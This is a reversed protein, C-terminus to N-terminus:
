RGDGGGPATTTLERATTSGDGDSDLSSDGGGGEGKAKGSSSAPQTPRGAARARRRLKGAAAPAAYALVVQPVRAAVAEAAAQAAQYALLQAAVDTAGSALATERLATVIRECQLMARLRAVRRRTGALSSGLAETWSQGKIVRDVWEWEADTLNDGYGLPDAPKDVPVIRRPM